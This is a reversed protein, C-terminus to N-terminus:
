VQRLARCFDAATKVRIEPNDVLAQDLVEALRKPLPFGRNLVPVPATRHVVTWPDRRAPFDRPTNGTLLYYLTAAAAWVDVEPMAYKYNLAPPPSMFAPTGAAMGTRTINSLGALDFAKALGLDGIKAARGNGISSLFINQPKLDRHVLGTARATSGDALMANPIEVSHTYELGSLVDRILPWAKEWSLPGERAVLRDLSGEDCFEMVIFYVGDESGSDYTKVVHPHHLATCNAMERVFLRQAKADTADTPLITKLARVEKSDNAQMMYVAGMGGRGIEQVVRCGRTSAIREIRQDITM